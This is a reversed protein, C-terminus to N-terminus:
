LSAATNVLFKGQNCMVFYSSYIICIVRRKQARSIKKQEVTGCNENISIAALNSSVEDSNAQDIQCLFHVFIEFSFFLCINLICM